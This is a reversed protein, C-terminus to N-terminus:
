LNSLTTPKTMTRSAKTPISGYLFSKRRIKELRTKDTPLVTESGYVMFFPMYGTARSPTTTLSWLVM